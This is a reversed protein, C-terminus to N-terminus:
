VVGTTLNATTMNVSLSNAEGNPSSGSINTATGMNASTGNGSTGVGDVIADELMGTSTGNNSGKEDLCTWGSAYSSNEGLQWWSVLNSYASHSNLNGPLGENYTETVQTQTLATNWYSVNSIQGNFYLGSNGPESGILFPATNSGTAGVTADTGKVNDVYIKITSGNHTAVVHHWKGDDIPNLTYTASIWGSSYVNFKFQNQTGSMQLSFVGNNGVAVAFSLQNSSKMWASISFNSTLKLSSDNGCDIYDNGDFNMAYKSFPAVTQLDSQVLNSQSMGSSDGALVNVFGPYETAGNNTGNNSGKSDQIGTTTNNLKWWYVLNSTASHSSLNSPTGNNYLETVQATTLADNWISINSLEGTNSNYNIGFIKGNLYNITINNKDGLTGLSSGNKYVTATTGDGTICFHYWENANVTGYSLITYTDSSGNKFYLSGDTYFFPYHIDGTAGELISGYPTSGFNVWFSVTRNGSLTFNTVDIYASSAGYFNLSSTYASPNQNNDVSWKTASSNYIEGANLKYWAKLNSSQPISALTKIPSGYNYLTAVESDSLYNNVWINFNSMQGRFMSSNNSAIGIRNGSIAGAQLTWSSSATEQDVLEGNLFLKMITGDWTAAVHYWKGIDITKTPLTTDNQWQGGLRHNTGSINLTLTVPQHLNSWNSRTLGFWVGVEHGSTTNALMTMWQGDSTNDRNIWGSITLSTASSLDLNNSIYDVNAGDFDFVYDQVAGNPTLYNSGTHASNGLPYYAIPPSSLAMPNFPTGSNYLTAVSNSGTAPLAYDFIAVEAIQGKFYHTLIGSYVGIRTPSNAAISSTDAFQISGEANGNVYIDVDQGNTYVIAIHYWNGYTVTFNSEKVGGSSQGGYVFIKRNSTKVGVSLMRDTTSYDGAAIIYGGFYDQQTEPKAWVSYTISSIGNLSTNLDIYENTGNFDMNYGQNNGTKYNPLRWQPNIYEAGM